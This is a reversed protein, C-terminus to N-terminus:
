LIRMSNFVLLGHLFYYRAAVYFLNAIINILNAAPPRVDRRRLLLLYLSYLTSLLFGANRKWSSTRMQLGTSLLFPLSASVGSLLGSILVASLPTSGSADAAAAVAAAGAGMAGAGGAAHAAAGHAAARLVVPPIFLRQLWGDRVSRSRM